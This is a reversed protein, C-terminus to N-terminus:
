DRKVEEARSLLADAREWFEREDDFDTYNYPRHKNRYEALMKLARDRVGECEGLRARLASLTSLAEDREKRAASLDRTLREIDRECPLMPDDGRAEGHVPCWDPQEHMAEYEYEIV